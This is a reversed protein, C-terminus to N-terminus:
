TIIAVRTAFGNCSSSTLSRFWMPLLPQVQDLSMEVIIITECGVAQLTQESGQEQESDCREQTSFAASM